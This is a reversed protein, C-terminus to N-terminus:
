ELARFLATKHLFDKRCRGPFDRFLALDRRGPAPFPNCPLHRFRGFRTSHVTALAMGFM